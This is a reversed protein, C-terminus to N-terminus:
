VIREGVGGTIAHALTRDSINQGINESTTNTVKVELPKAKNLPEKVNAVQLDSAKPPSPLSPPQTAKATGYRAKVEGFPLLLLPNVMGAVGAGAMGALGAMAGVAGTSMGAVQSATDGMTQAVQSVAGGKFNRVVEEAGTKNQHLTNIKVGDAFETQTVWGGGNPDYFHKVNKVAYKPNTYLRRANKDGGFSGNIGYDVGEHKYGKRQEMFKGTQRYSNLPKGNVMFRDLYKNVDERPKGAQSAVRLDYHDGSGIGTDRKRYDGMIAVLHGQGQTSSMSSMATATATTAVTPVASAVPKSAPSPSSASGGGVQKQIAHLHERRRNDQKRWNFPVRQGNNGAVTEQGYAWGVYQKGLLKSLNEAQVNPNNKLYDGVKKHSSRMEQAVFEAQADITAQSHVMNGQKDLLGKARLFQALREGREGNWSMMGLNHIPKGKRKALDTHGGFLLESRYDNERGVEATLALAQQHNFGNKRFAEYVMRQNQATDKFGFNKNYANKGTNIANATPEIVNRSTWDVASNYGNALKEMVSSTAGVASSYANSVMGGVNSAVNKVSEPVLNAMSSLMQGVGKSVKDFIESSLNKVTSVVNQIHNSIVNFSNNALTGLSGVATSLASVVGVMPVAYTHFMKEPLNYAILKQTWQDIYPAVNEGVVEGLSGGGWAGLVGGILGGIATGVVPVASGITAGLAMGGIAGVTGGAFNGVTAGKEQISQENWDLFGLAGLAVGLGGAKGYKGLGKYWKDKKGGKNKGLDVDPLEVSSGKGKKKHRSDIDIGGGAGGLGLARALKSLLGDKSRLINDAIRELLKIQKRNHEVEEKPLPENRKRLKAIASLPKFALSAMKGVPRFLDGIERIADISPDISSSDGMNFNAHRIADALKSVQSVPQSTFRGQSDRATNVSKTSHAKPEHTHKVQHAPESVRMRRTTATNEKIARELANHNVIQGQHSKQVAHTQKKSENLLNDLTRVQNQSITRVSDVSRRIQQHNVIQVDQQEVMRQLAQQQIVQSKLDHATMRQQQLLFQKIQEVNDDITNVQEAVQISLFGDKDYVFGSQGTIKSM